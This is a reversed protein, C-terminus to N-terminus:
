IQSPCAVCTNQPIYKQFSIAFKHPNTVPTTKTILM